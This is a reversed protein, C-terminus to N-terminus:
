KAGRLNVFYQSSHRDTQRSAYRSVVCGLKVLNETCTLQLRPEIRTQHCHLVNHVVTKTSSTMNEYLPATPGCDLVMNHKTSNALRHCWDCTLCSQKTSNALHYCRLCLRGDGFTDQEPLSGKPIISRSREM